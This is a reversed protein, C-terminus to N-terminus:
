RSIATGVKEEGEIDVASLTSVIGSVSKRTVESVFPHIPIESDEVTIRAKVESKVKLPIFDDISAQREHRGKGLEECTPRSCKGCNM